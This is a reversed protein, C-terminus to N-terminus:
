RVVTLEPSPVIGLRDEVKTLRKDEKGIDDFNGEAKMEIRKLTATHLDQTDKIDELSMTVKEVQDWLIVQKRGQDNLQKGQSDLKEGQADLKENIVSQQEKLSKVNSSTAVLYLEQHDVKSKLVEVLEKLPRIAGKLLDELKKTDDKSM